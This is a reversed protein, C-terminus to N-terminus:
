GTQYQPAVIRTTLHGDDSKETVKSVMEDSDSVTM